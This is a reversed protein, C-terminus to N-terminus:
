SRDLPDQHLYGVHTFFFVLLKQLSVNVMHSFQSAYCWKVLIVFLDVKPPSGVAPTVEPAMGRGDGGEPYGFPGCVICYPLWIVFCILPCIVTGVAPRGTFPGATGYQVVMIIM